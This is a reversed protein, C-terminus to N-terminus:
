TDQEDILGEKDLWDLMKSLATALDKDEFDYQVSGAGTLRNEYLVNYGYNWKIITLEGYATSEPLRELMECITPAPYFSHRIKEGDSKTIFSKDFIKYGYIPTKVEVWYYESEPFYKGLKKAYELPMHNM